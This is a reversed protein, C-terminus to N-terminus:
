TYGWKGILQIVFCGLERRQDDNWEESKFEPLTCNEIKVGRLIEDTWENVM